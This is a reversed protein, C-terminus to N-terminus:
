PTGSKIIVPFYDDFRRDLKGNTTVGNFGSVATTKSITPVKIQLDIYNPKAIVVTGNHIPNGSVIRALVDTM